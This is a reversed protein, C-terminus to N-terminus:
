AANVAKVLQLAPNHPDWLEPFVELPVFGKALYFKRTEAYERSTSTEAVTKVQLFRAGQEAAWREGLELLASGLGKNRFAAHVAMCHVEWAEPFHQRLSIFGIVKGNEEFAFTPKTGTDEVYMRLADEIGFWRPLSRLVAECEQQRQLAPGLTRM